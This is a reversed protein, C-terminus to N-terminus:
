SGAEVVTGNWNARYAEASYNGSAGVFELYGILAEIEQDTLDFDPMRATGNMLFAKAYMPGKTSITNTLDPGMYGGLGYFQHCAVCNHQQYLQQGHGIQETMPLPQPLNPQATYVMVSYAAFAAVLSGFIIRKCGNWDM